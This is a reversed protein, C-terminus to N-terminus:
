KGIFELFLDRDAASSFAIRGKLRYIRNYIYQKDHEMLTSITTSSFGAAMFCFLRMDDEKLGQFQERFKRMIGDYRRNLMDELGATDGRLTEIVSKVEKLIKPQLNDTGEYVYYQECLRELVAYNEALKGPEKLRSQMNNVRSEMEEAITMYKETEAKEESIIKDTQIKRAKLFWLVTATIASLLLVLAWLRMKSSRTREADIEERESLYDIQSSLASNGSSRADTASVVKELARLAAATNGSLSEVQYERFSFRAKEAVTEALDSSKALAAKAEARNGLLAYSYALVGMDMSGLPSRLDESVRSLMNVALAPDQDKKEIVMSAYARLCRVETLTDAAEHASFLVNRYVADADDYRDMAEFSLAYDLLASLSRRRDPVSEFAQYAEYQKRAASSVAGAAAYTRSLAMLIDGLSSADGVKRASREARTFSVTAKNNDGNKEQILGLHYWAMMKKDEPGRRDFYAVASSLEDEGAVNVYGYNADLAMAYLLAYEAKQRSSRLIDKDANELITLASDPAAMICDSASRLIRDGESSCSAIVVSAAMAVILYGSKM